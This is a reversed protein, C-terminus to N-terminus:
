QFFITFVHDIKILFTVCPVIDASATKSDEFDM